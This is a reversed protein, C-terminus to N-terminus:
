CAVEPSRAILLILASGMMSVMICILAFRVPRIEVPRGRLVGGDAEAERSIFGACVRDPVASGGWGQVLPGVVFLVLILVWGIVNRLVLWYRSKLFRQWRVSAPFTLL